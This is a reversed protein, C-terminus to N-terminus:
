NLNLGPVVVPALRSTNSGDGLQPCRQLGLGLRQRRQAAGPQPGPRLRLLDRRHQHARDGAGAGACPGRSTETLVGELGAPSPTAVSVNDLRFLQRTSGEIPPGSDFDAPYIVTVQSTVSQDIAVITADPSVVIATLAYFDIDAQQCEFCFVTDKDYYGCAATLACLLLLVIHALACHARRLARGPIGLIGTM